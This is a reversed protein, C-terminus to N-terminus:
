AAIEQHREAWVVVERAIWLPHGKGGSASPLRVPAPFGALFVTKEAATRRSQKLYAAVHVADWLDVEIPIAVSVPATLTKSTNDDDM